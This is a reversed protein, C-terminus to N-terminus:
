MSARFVSQGSCFISIVHWTYSMCYKSMCVTTGDLSHSLFTSNPVHLNSSAGNRRMVEWVNLPCHCCHLHSRGSIHLRLGTCYNVCIHRLHIHHTSFSVKNCKNIFGRAMYFGKMYLRFKFGGFQQFPVCSLNLALGIRRDIFNQKITYFVVQLTWFVPLSPSQYRWYQSICEEFYPWASRISRAMLIVIRINHICAPVRTFRQASHRQVMKSVRAWNTQAPHLLDGSSKDIPM